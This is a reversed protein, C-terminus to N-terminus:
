TLGLFLKDFQTHELTVHVSSRNPFQQGGKKEDDSVKRRERQFANMWEEKEQATRAFLTYWKEKDVNSIRWAHRVGSGNHTM